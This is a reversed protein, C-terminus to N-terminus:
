NAASKATAIARKNLQHSLRGFHRAKELMKHKEEPSMGLELVREIGRAGIVCPLTSFVGMIGHQGTTMVAVPLVAMEDALISDCVRMVCSAMAEKGVPAAAKLSRFRATIEEFYPCDPHCSDFYSAYSCTATCWITAPTRYAGSVEFVSAQQPGIGIVRTSAFGSVVLAAEATIETPSTTVILIGNFGANKAFRVDNRVLEVKRGLYTDETEGDVPLATSSIVAIAASSLDYTQGLRVTSGNAVPAEICLAEVRRQLNAAGDGFLIIEVRRAQNILSYVSEAAVWDCGFIAIRPIELKNSGAPPTQRM